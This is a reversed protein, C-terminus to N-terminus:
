LIIETTEFHYINTDKYIDDDQFCFSLSYNVLEKRHCLVFNKQKHIALHSNNKEKTHATAFISSQYFEKALIISSPSIGLGTGLAKLYAEKLTWIRYFLKTKETYSMNIQSEIYEQEEKHFLFDYCENFLSTKTIEEIDIGLPNRQTIESQASFIGCARNGSHSLNFSLPFNTCFLKGEKSKQINAKHLDFGYDEFAKQLVLGAGLSLKRDKPFLYSDCKEKRWLPLANYSNEYLEENDLADVNIIYIKPLHPM